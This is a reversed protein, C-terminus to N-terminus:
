WAALLDEPTVVTAGTVATGTRSVAIMPTSEDAGPLQSRHRVLATLDAQDFPATDHWKISGVGLVRDAVPARDALVLDIEPDNTRTWYGGVAPPPIDGLGLAEPPLRDISERVLPEIARGRWALWSARIRALVRDGRAREIEPMAPGLYTLWFRLYPDAVRYRTEKSRRTSLPRDAAVVRKGTLTDLSRTLSTNPIEGARQGIRTFTTEGSGIAALVRRAQADPPFEAALAREASVLLPSTPHDLADALHEWLTAGPTWDRCVLPLGGTVLTADFAEAAPLGILDGVERPSLPPVVLETARQHFPRGYTNLAEMMALDSGIGILLVPLRSLVRDFMKQLTGELSPDSATLYPLEDLVVISPRDTPLTAALLRLAADWSEVTLGQFTAAGPLDSFAVDEVFMALEKAAPRTSATFYVSPVDARDIFEEILRSKGVRRRGRVLLARGPRASREPTPTPLLRALEAILRERWVFREEV